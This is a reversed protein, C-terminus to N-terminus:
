KRRISRFFAGAAQGWRQQNDQPGVLIATKTPAATITVDPNAEDFKWHAILSSDNPLAVVENPDLGRNYVRGDDILGGYVYSPSGTRDAGINLHGYGNGPPTDWSETKRPPGGAPDLYANMTSGNRVIVIHHWTGALQSLTIGTNWSATPHHIILKRPNSSDFQLTWHNTTGSSNTKSMIGAWPNQIAAPKIWVSLTYNCDVTLQLKYPDDDTQVYDDVGDFELANHGDISQWTPENYLIGINGKDSSDATTEVIGDKIFLGGLINLRADGNILVRKDVVVLGNVDLIADKDIILDGTVFLAPLNKGASITNNSGQVTVNGDVLLMGTIEVNRTIILDADRYFIYAGAPIDGSGITASYIYYKPCDPNSTFDGYSVRPWELLTTLEAPTKLQGTKFTQPILSHAFVDGYINCQTNLTGNCYVDGNVTIGSWLTTNTGTWLAICPDLRVQATLSSRGVEEGDKRRYATCTIDYNCWRTLGSKDTNPDVSVNYYDDSSEVIQLEDAGMWYEGNPDLEDLPVDQPNLILGKAHQLGSEALYDMQTRLMMNQGCALEVDSRSLFGLALITITMIIFLVVLLAAGKKKTNRIADRRSGEPCSQANRLKTKQRIM